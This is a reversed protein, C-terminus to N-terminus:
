LDNNAFKVSGISKRTAFNTKTEKFGLSEALALDVKSSMELYTLELGQVENSLTRAQAELSKREVISFTMNGLILIYCLGLAGCFSLLIYFIRRELNNNDVISINGGYNKLKLSLERM